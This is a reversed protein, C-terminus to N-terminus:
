GKATSAVDQNGEKISEQAMAYSEQTALQLLKALLCDKDIRKTQHHLFQLERYILALMYEQESQAQALMSEVDCSM